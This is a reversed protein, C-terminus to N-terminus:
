TFFREATKVNVMVFSVSPPSEPYADQLQQKFPAIFYNTYMNIQDTCFSNSFIIIEQPPQSNRKVYASAAQVGLRVM